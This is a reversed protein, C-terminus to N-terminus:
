SIDAIEESRYERLRVLCVTLVEICVCLVGVCVYGCLLYPLCLVITSIRQYAWKLYLFSIANLKM